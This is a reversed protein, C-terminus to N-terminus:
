ILKLNFSFTLRMLEKYRSDLKVSHILHPPFLLIDGDVINPIYEVWACDNIESDEVGAFNHTRYSGHDRHFITPNCNKNYYIGSWYPMQNGVSPLHWHPEKGQNNHYINYWFNLFDVNNPLNIKRLSQTHM